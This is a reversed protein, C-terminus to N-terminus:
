AIGFHVLLKNLAATNEDTKVAVADIDAKVLATETNHVKDMWAMVAAPTVPEGTQANVLPYNWIEAISAPDLVTVEPDIGPWYDAVSSTDYANNSAYQKAIAGDPITPDGDYQAIWYHPERIGQSHFAARVSPWTDANCYVSPDTGNSRRRVVWGPANGPLADGREVDLVHGGDFASSIAIDVHIANPFQADIEGMNAYIGDDYGAVIRAGRPLNGPTVADYMTRTM